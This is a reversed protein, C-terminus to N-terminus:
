YIAKGNLKTSVQMKYSRSIPLEKSGILVFNASFASVKDIAIIFSRHIRLFKEVDLLKEIHSIPQYSILSEKETHVTIYETMSEIYLIQEFPIKYTKRDSKLLLYAPNDEQIEESSNLLAYQQQVKTIAKWFREFSIPKVLYDLANFEYSEVAYERYATTFVVLPPNSLGKIFDMGSLKPMSIDLFMVDIEKRQLLQFAEMASRCKGVIEWKELRLIYNELIEIALPEDDVIMCKISMQM